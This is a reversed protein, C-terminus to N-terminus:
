HQAAFTGIIADAHAIGFLHWFPVRCRVEESDFGRPSAIL